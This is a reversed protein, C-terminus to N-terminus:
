KKEKSSEKKSEKDSKKDSKEDSKKDDDNSDGTTAAETAAPAQTAEANEEVVNATQVNSLASYMENVDINAIRDYKFYDQDIQRAVIFIIGALILSTVITVIVAKLRKKAEIKKRNYKEQKRREVKANSM